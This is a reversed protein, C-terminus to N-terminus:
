HQKARKKRMWEREGNEGRRGGSKRERRGVKREEMRGIRCKREEKNERGGERGAKSQEAGAATLCCKM